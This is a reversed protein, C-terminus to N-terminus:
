VAPDLAAVRVLYSPQAAPEERYGIRRIQRDDLYLAVDVLVGLHALGGGHPARRKDQLVDAIGGLVAAAGPRHQDPPCRRVVELAVPGALPTWGTDQAAALAAQPLARVRAAQRHGATFLALSGNKVPPQGAVEFTLALTQTDTV